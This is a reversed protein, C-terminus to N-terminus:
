QPAYGGKVMHDWHLKFCHKVFKSDHRKDDYVYLHYENLFFFGEDYPDVNPNHQFTIHVLIIIQYSHRHMSQMENQVEFSCNEVFAVVFVM